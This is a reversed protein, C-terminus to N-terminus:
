FQMNTSLINGSIEIDIVVHPTETQELATIGKMHLVSVFHCRIESFQWGPATYMVSKKAACVEVAGLSPHTLCDRWPQEFVGTGLYNDPMYDWKKELPNM